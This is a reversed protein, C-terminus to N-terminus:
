PMSNWTGTGASPLPAATRGSPFWPPMPPFVAFRQCLQCVLDFAGELEQPTAKFALHSIQQPTAVARFPRAHLEDYLQERLPHSSFPLCYFDAM